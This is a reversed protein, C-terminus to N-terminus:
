YTKLSQDATTAYGNMGTVMNRVQTYGQSLLFDTAKGSRGGSRCICVINADESIEAFRAEIEGLPIPVVGPLVSIELEHPERVDVLVLNAGGEIEAKLEIPTVEAPQSMAYTYFLPLLFTTVYNGDLEKRSERNPL